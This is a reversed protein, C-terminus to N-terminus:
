IFRCILAATRIEMLHDSYRTDASVKYLGGSLVRCRVPALAPLFFPTRSSLLHRRDERAAVHRALVRDHLARAAVGPGGRLRVGHDGGPQEGPVDSCKRCLLSVWGDRDVEYVVTLLALVFPFPCAAVAHLTEPLKSV